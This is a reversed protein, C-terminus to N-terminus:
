GLFKEEAAAEEMLVTKIFINAKGVAHEELQEWQILIKGYEQVIVTICTNLFTSKAGLYLIM